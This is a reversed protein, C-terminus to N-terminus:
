LGHQRDQRGRDRQEEKEAERMFHVTVVKLTLTVQLSWTYSEKEIMITELM